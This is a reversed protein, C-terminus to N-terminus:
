AAFLQENAIANPWDRMGFCGRYRRMILAHVDSRQNDSPVEGYTRAYSTLLDDVSAPNRFETQQGVREIVIQAWLPQYQIHTM